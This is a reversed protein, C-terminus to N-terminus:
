LDDITRPWDDRLLRSLSRDALLRGGTQCAPCYNTERDAYVIHQVTTGCRGCPQGYRGHVAHEPRFATILESSPFKDGCARRLRVLGELLGTEVAEHLRAVAEDDLSASLALPSLGAACLIEDSWANGIGAFLRPDTLSRKLTHNESRLREAFAEPTCGLPELGGPDHAALAERGAVVHLSARKHSGAETLALTGSEFDFWAAVVRGAAPKLGAAAWKFRGAIMLHVVLFLDGELCFVLRKGLREVSLLRRGECDGLSPQWTRLIFPSALRVRLLPHGVVTRGLAERYLEIEPLEPM